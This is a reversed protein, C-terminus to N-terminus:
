CHSSFEVAINGSGSFGSLRRDRLIPTHINTTSVEQVCGRMLSVLKAPKRTSNGAPSVRCFEASVSGLSDCYLTAIRCLQHRSTRWLQRWNPQYCCVFSCETTVVDTIAPHRPESSACVRAGVRVQRTLLPVLRLVM